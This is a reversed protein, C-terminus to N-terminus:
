GCSGGTGGSGTGGGFGASPNETSFTESCVGPKSGNFANCIATAINQPDRPYINAEEGDLIFTPSGTVGYQENLAKDDEMYSSAKSTMCSTLKSEDIGATKLCGASDGAEVFCKLYPILKAYQEERICIMRANETDEKEGHMTYSVFRLEINAKGQFKEWVPLVGKLAQLGYPCYSMIFVQLTPAGAIHTASGTAATQTIKIDKLTIKATIKQGAYQPNADLTLHTANMAIVRATPFDGVQIEQGITPTLTTIIETETFKIEYNGNDTPITTDNGYLRLTIKSETMVIVKYTFFGFPIEQNLTPEQSLKVHTANLELVKYPWPAQSINYSKGVQPDESFAQKFNDISLWSTRNVDTNRNEKTIRAYTFVLENDYEGYADKADLTINKTEGKTMKAIETDLKNSALKLTSAVSGKTFDQTGNTIRTGNETELTYPINYVTHTTTPSQKVLIMILIVALAIVAIVLAALGIRTWNIKKSPKPDSIVQVQSKNEDKAKETEM